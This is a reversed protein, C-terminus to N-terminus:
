VMFANASQMDSNQHGLQHARLIHDDRQSFLPLCFVRDGILIQWAAVLDRILPGTLCM